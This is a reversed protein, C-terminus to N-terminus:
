KNLQELAAKFTRYEVASTLESKEAFKELTQLEDRVAKKMATDLRQYDPDSHITQQLTGFCKDFNKRTEPKKDDIEAQSLALQWSLEPHAQEIEMSKKFAALQTIKTQYYARRYEHDAFADPKLNQSLWILAHVTPWKQKAADEERIKDLVYMAHQFAPSGSVQKKPASDANGPMPLEHLFHQKLIAVTAPDNVQACIKNELLMLETENLTYELALIRYEPSKGVAAMVERAKAASAPDKITDPTIRFYGPFLSKGLQDLEIRLKEVRASQEVYAQDRQLFTQYPDAADQGFAIVALCVSWLIIISKKM